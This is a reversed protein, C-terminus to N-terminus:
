IPVISIYYFDSTPFTNMYAGVGISNVYEMRILGNLM